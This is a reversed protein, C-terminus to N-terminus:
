RAARRAAQRVNAQAREIAAAFVHLYDGMLGPTFMGVDEIEVEPHPRSTGNHRLSITMRGVIDGPKPM